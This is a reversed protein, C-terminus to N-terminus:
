QLRRPTRTGRDPSRRQRPSVAPHPHRSASPSAAQRDAAAKKMLEDLPLYMLSNGNKMDVMIKSSDALIAELTELYLRQRTVEPAKRYATLVSVFRAAEGEAHAIVQAKYAEAEKRLRDADGGAKPIVENAYAEAHNKHREEDERAKIVDDFAAQVAQPPQANQMNVSRVELGTAYREMMEQILARTSEAAEARGVTLVEDMKSTGVVERLASETAQHLTVVPDRVNFLFNEPNAVKYQVELEVSMINEDQTLMLAKHTLSNIKKVNVKTVSGIPYPFVWNWGQDTTESYRGFLLEVGREAPQVIYFGFLSWIVLVIVLLVLIVTLGPGQPEDSQRRDNNDGGGFLGGLKDQMKKVLEELDPPGQENQRKGWPDKGNGGPENWAM